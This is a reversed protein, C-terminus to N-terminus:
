HTSRTPEGLFAAARRGWGAIDQPTTSVHLRSAPILAKLREATEVPHVPDTDWALILTPLRLAALAEPAPLDSAAAGALVHPLLAASVDPEASYRTGALAAPAPSDRILAMLGTADRAALDAMYRYQGAQAARAEWATPPTTLVLRSFRHPARVAAHLATATGMSAGIVGVPRDPSFHDALALMDQALADWRYDEPRPAGTSRGHGRADYSILRHGAAAPAYDVLDRATDAARSSTLGHAHLVVDGRGRATFAIEAGRVPVQAGTADEGQGPVRGTRAEHRTM